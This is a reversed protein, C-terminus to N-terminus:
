RSALRHAAAVVDAECPLVLLAAAALPTFTDAGVVRELPKGGSGGEVIATIVGEGVGASRRGEDLVVHPMNTHPTPHTLPTFHPQRSLRRVQAIPAQCTQQQQQQQRRVPSWGSREGLAMGSAVGVDDDGSSSATAAGAEGGGGLDLESALRQKFAAVISAAQARLEADSQGAMPGGAFARGGALAAVIDVVDLSSTVSGARRSDHPQAPRRSHPTVGTSGPTTLPLLQQQQQQQQDQLQLQQQQQDQLQQSTHPTGSAPGTLNSHSSTGGDAANSHRRHAGQALDQSHLSVPVVRGQDPQHSPSSPPQHTSAPHRNVM